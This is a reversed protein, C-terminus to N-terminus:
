YISVILVKPTVKSLWRVKLCCVCACVCVRLREATINVEVGPHGSV